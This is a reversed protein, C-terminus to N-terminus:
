PRVEDYLIAKSGERGVSERGTIGPSANTSNIPVRLDEFNWIDAWSSAEPDPVFEPDLAGETPRWLYQGRTRVLRPGRDRFGESLHETWVHAPELVHDDVSIFRPSTM